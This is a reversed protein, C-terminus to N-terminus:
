SGRKVGQNSFKEVFSYADALTDPYGVAVKAGCDSHEYVTHFRFGSEVLFRVKRWQALDTAKPASFKRGLMEMKHGCQPCRRGSLCAPYKFSKRCHFCVFPFRFAQIAKAKAFCTHHIFRGM